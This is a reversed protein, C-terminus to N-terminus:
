REGAAGPLNREYDARAREAASREAPTPGAASPAVGAPDAPNASPAAAGPTGSQPANLAPGPTGARSADTPALAPDAGAPAVSAGPVGSAGPVSPAAGNQPGRDPAGQASPGPAAPATGGFEPRVMSPDGVLMVDQLRTARGGVKLFAQGSEDYFFAHAVGAVEEGNVLDKGVVFRGLLESGQRDAMRTMASSINQMQELSSFQAMQAIFQQDQVPNTPDQSSLQTILLKLFDDKGLQKPQRMIEIGDLGSEQVQRREEILREINVSRDQNMYSNRNQELEISSTVNPM